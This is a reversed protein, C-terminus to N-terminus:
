LEIQVREVKTCVPPLQMKHETGKKDEREILELAQQAVNFKDWLVNKSDVHL